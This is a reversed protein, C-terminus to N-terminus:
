TSFTKDIITLIKKCNQIIGSERSRSKRKTETPLQHGIPQLKKYIPLYMLIIKITLNKNKNKKKREREDNGKLTKM